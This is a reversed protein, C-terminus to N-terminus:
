YNNTRYILSLVLIIAILYYFETILFVNNTEVSSIKYVQSIKFFNNDM